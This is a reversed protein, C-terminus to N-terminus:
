MTPIATDVFVLSAPYSGETLQPGQTGSLVLTGLLLYGGPSVDSLAPTHPHQSNWLPYSRHNRQEPVPLFFLCKPAHTHMHTRTHTDGSFQATPLALRGLALLTTWGWGQEQGKAALCHVQQILPCHLADSGGPLCHPSEGHSESSNLVLMSQTWCLSPKRPSPPM